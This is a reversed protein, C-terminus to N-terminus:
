KDDGTYTILLYAKFEKVLSPVKQCCKVRKQFSLLNKSKWVIWTLKQFNRYSFLTLKKLRDVIQFLVSISCWLIKQTRDWSVRRLFSKDFSTNLFLLLLLNFSIKVFVEGLLLSSASPDGHSSVLFRFIYTKHIKM